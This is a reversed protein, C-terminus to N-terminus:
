VNYINNLVYKSLNREYIKNSLLICFNEIIYMECSVLSIQVIEMCYFRNKSCETLKPKLVQHKISSIRDFTSVSIM